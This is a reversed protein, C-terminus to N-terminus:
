ALREELIQRAPDFRALRVRRAVEADLAARPALGVLESGRVRVGREAALREVLEFVAVLGARRHDCVNTSVQVARGGEVAFGLARVAPLGGGKERVRAAIARALALDDSELTVNFAILVDRVGIATAGAAPHIAAPGADPARAPDRGIAERLAEYGGRRVDPLARRAPVLAAEGYYYVPIALEAGVRAGLRHALRVCEAASAGELPVLPCVDTAGMRPHVGAHRRLDISRAALAIAAFAGELVAEPAGAFTLVARHHDPDLSKDLVRAGGGAAAEALADLLEPRRGESFNPVCEVLSM